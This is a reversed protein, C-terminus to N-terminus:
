YWKMIDKEKVPGKRVIKRNTTDFVTSPQKRPLNGGDIIVDVKGSFTKIVESIKYLPPKGSKNASTATIPTGFKKLLLLSFKHPPIRFGITEKSLIDPIMKKKKVVLTLRGPMFKKILLLDEKGVYAYCKIMRLSSVIISIPKKERGKIEFIKRIAKSSTADAGIGYSSESPYIIVGGKKLVNVATPITNKEKSKIITTKMIM